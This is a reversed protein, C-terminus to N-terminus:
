LHPNRAFRRGHMLRFPGGGKSLMKGKQLTFERVSGDENCMFDADVVGEKIHANQEKVQYQDNQVVVKTPTVRIVTAPYTDGNFSYSVGEGVQFDHKFESM